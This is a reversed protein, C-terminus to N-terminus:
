KIEKKANFGVVEYGMAEYLRRTRDVEVGTTQGLHIETAGREKAWHEFAQILRPAASTGRKSPLIFLGLDCAIIDNGFFQESVMGIIGGYYQHQDDKILACFVDPSELMAELKTPNWSNSKFSGEDRMARALAEVVSFLTHRYVEIM